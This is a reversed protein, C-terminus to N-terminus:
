AADRIEAHAGIRVLAERLTAAQEPSPLAFSVPRGELVDDTCRKAASLSLGAHDQILKTLSVKQLGTSWGTLTVTTKM